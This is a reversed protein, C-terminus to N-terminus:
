GIEPSIAITCVSQIAVGMQTLVPPWESGNVAEGSILGKPPLTTSERSFFPRTRLPFLPLFLTEEGKLLPRLFYYSQKNHERRKANGHKKAAPIHPPRYVRHFLPFNSMPYSLVLKNKTTKYLGFYFYCILLNHQLVNRPSSFGKTVIITRGM